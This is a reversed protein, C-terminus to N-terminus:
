SPEHDTGKPNIVPAKPSRFEVAREDTDCNFLRCCLPRTDYIECIGRGDADRRFFVCAGSPGNLLWDAEEYPVLGSEDTISGRERIKPERRADFATAEILLRECCHGRRCVCRAPDHQLLCLPCADRVHMATALPDGALWAEHEPVSCEDDHEEGQPSGCVLCVDTVLPLPTRNNM